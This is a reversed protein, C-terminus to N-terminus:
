RGENPINKLHPLPGGNPVIKSSAIAGKKKSRGHPLRHAGHRFGEIVLVRAEGVEFGADDGDLFTGAGEPDLQVPGGEVGFEVRVADKSVLVPQAEHEAVALDAGVLNAHSQGFYALVTPAIDLATAPRATAVGAARGGPWKVLLPVRLTEEHPTTHMFYGHEDFQEGHDATLM